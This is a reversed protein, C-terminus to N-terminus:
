RGVSPWAAVRALFAELDDYIRAPDFRTAARRRAREAYLAVREPEELLTRLAEALLRPKAPPVLLGTEEHDVIETLSSTESAVVALGALAGEAAVYGFGEYRSPVVLVDLRSYFPEMAELHGLFTFRDAVGRRKARRELRGRLPGDGALEFSWPREGRLLGLADVLSDFGKQEVLRGAAGFRLGELSRAQRPAPQFRVPNYIREIRERPFWHLSKRVTEGTADSNVLIASLRRWTGRRLFNDVLPRDIGRRLAHRAGEGGIEKGLAFRLDRPSNSLVVDHTRGAAQEAEFCATVEHFEAARALSSRPAVHLVVEHGRRMFEIAGDLFWREGGGWEANRNVLGLKVAAGDAARHSRLGM